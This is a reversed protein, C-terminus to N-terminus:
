HSPTTQPFTGAEKWRLLIQEHAWLLFTCFICHRSGLFGSTKGNSLCSECIDRVGSTAAAHPTNCLFLKWDVPHIFYWKCKFNETYFCLTRTKLSYSYRTNSNGYILLYAAHNFVSFCKKRWIIYVVYM